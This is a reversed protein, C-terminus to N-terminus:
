AEMKAPLDRTYTKKHLDGADKHIPRWSITWAQRNCLGNGSNFICNGSILHLSVFNGMQNTNDMNFKQENMLM